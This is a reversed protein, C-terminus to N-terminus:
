PPSPAGDRGVPPPQALSSGTPGPPSQKLMGAPCPEETASVHDSLILNGAISGTVIRSPLRFILGACQSQSPDRLLGLGRATGSAPLTESYVRIPLPRPAPVFPRVMSWVM